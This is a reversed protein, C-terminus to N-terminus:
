TVNSAISGSQLAEKITTQIWAPLDAFSVVNPKREVHHSGFHTNWLEKEGDDECALDWASDLAGAALLAAVEVGDQEDHYDALADTRFKDYAVESQFMHVEERPHGKSETQVIVIEGVQIMLSSWDVELKSRRTLQMFRGLASLVQTHQSTHTAVNAGKELLGVLHVGVPDAGSVAWFNGFEDATSKVIYPILQM